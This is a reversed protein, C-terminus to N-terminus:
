TLGLDNNIQEIYWDMEAKPLSLAVTIAEGYQIVFRKKVQRDTYGMRKERGAWLAIKESLIKQTDIREQQKKRMAKGAAPGAAFAVRNAVKDPDDLIMERELLRITEPDLLEMDGDVVKLAERPSQDPSRRYPKDTNGCYPCADLARDFPSNCTENMCIRMLETRERRKVINDLTWIRRKDPLGHYKRNGVHDIIVAYPKPGAAQAALRGERTSLDYGKAFVPRLARGCCQLYKGLSKTPRAMIVADTGPVDFGEDFLDVNILVKIKGDRYDFVGNLREKSPTSGTLLKAPIGAKNFEEEMRQGAEICDAFLIAQKGDIFKKYNSVVDGIIHSNLSATARAKATYDKTESGDDNLHDRYDSPPEVVKYNALYGQDILYRVAPGEVMTDFLGFAHRGLGKKDLRQPTATFGVGWANPFMDAAEGWKNDRLQHAAEDLIWVKQQLAWSQYKDKRALLTDVSVVTIIARHNYFITGHARREAEMIELVNARQGIINHNIGLQALTMCLQAVLERRHVKIVVPSGALALEHALTCLTMAKGSGTPSVALVNRMGVNWAEYIRQKLDIQYDRLVIAAGM